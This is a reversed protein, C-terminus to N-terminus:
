GEGGEEFAELVNKKFKDGIPVSEKLSEFYIEWNSQSRDIELVYNMNVAYSRHCQIIAGGQVMEMMKKLSTKQLVYKGRKTFVYTTRVYVAIFYIEDIYVKVYIGKIDMNIYKRDKKDIVEQKDLNNILKNTIEIVDKKEYPKILFDYCHIEKFAELMYKMHTTTFIIWALEYNPNARLESAFELGSSNKLSIDVFFIHITNTLAIALAEDKSAAEFINIPKDVEKIMKIFTRRQIEDDEVVLINFM